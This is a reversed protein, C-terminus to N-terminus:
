SAYSHPFFFTRSVLGLGKEPMNNESGFRFSRKSGTQGAPQEVRQSVDADSGNMRGCHLRM